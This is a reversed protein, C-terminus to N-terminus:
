RRILKLSEILGFDSAMSIARIIITPFVLYYRYPIFSLWLGSYDQLCLVGLPVCLRHECLRSWGLHIIFCLFMYNSMFSPNRLVPHLRRSPIVRNLSFVASVPLFQTPCKLTMVPLKSVSRARFISETHTHAHTHTHTHTHTDSYM